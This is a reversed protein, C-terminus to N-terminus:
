GGRSKYSWAKSMELLLTTSQGLASKCALEVNPKPVAPDETLWAVEVLM